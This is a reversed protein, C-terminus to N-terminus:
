EAVTITFVQNGEAGKAEQTVSGDANVTLYLSSHVAKLMVGGAAEEQTFMQNDAGTASWLIAAKGADTSLDLIDILTGEATYTLTYVGESLEKVKWTVEEDVAQVFM